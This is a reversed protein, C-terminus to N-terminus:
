VKCFASSGMLAVWHVESIQLKQLIPSTAADTTQSKVAFPLLSKPQMTEAPDHNKQEVM